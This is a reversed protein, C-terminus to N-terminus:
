YVYIFSFRILFEEQPQHRQQFELEYIYGYDASEPKHFVHLVFCDQQTLHSQDGARVIVSDSLIGTDWRSLAMTM